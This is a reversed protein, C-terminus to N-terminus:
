LMRLVAPGLALGPTTESPQELLGAGGVLHLGDDDQGGKGKLNDFAGDQIAQAIAAEAGMGLGSPSSLFLAQQGESWEAAAEALRSRPGDSSGGGSSPPNAQQEAQQAREKERAYQAARQKADGARGGGGGSGGSAPRANPPWSVAGANIQCTARIWAPLVPPLLRSARSASLAM